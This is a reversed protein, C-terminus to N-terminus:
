LKLTAREAGLRAQTSIRSERRLILIVFIIIWPIFILEGAV